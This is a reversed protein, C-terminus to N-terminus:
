IAVGLLARRKEFITMLMVRVIATLNIMSFPKFRPGGALSMLLMTVCCPQLRKALQAAQLASMDLPVPFLMLTNDPILWVAACILLDSGNAKSALM